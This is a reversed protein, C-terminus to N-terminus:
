AGLLAKKSLEDEEELETNAGTMLSKRGKADTQTTVKDQGGILSQSRSGYLKTFEDQVLKEYEKSGVDPPNYEMGLLSTRTKDATLRDAINTRAQDMYQKKLAEEQQRRADEQAQRAEAAANANQERMQAMQMSFDPMEPMQFEPMHFEPMEVPRGANYGMRGIELYPANPGSFTKEVADWSAGRKAANMANMYAPQSYDRPPSSGM